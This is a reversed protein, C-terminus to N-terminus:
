GPVLQLTDIMGVLSVLEAQIEPVKCMHEPIRGGIAGTNRGIAKTPLTQMIIGDLASREPQHSEYYTACLSQEMIYLRAGIHAYYGAMALSLILIPAGARLWIDLFFPSVAVRPIPFRIYPPPPM